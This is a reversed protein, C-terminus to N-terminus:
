RTTLSRINIDAEFPLFGGSKRDVFACATSLKAGRYWDKAYGRAFRPSDVREPWQGAHDSDDCPPPNGSNLLHM